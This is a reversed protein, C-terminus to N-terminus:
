TSYTKSNMLLDCSRDYVEFFFGCLKSKHRFLLRLTSSGSMKKLNFSQFLEIEYKKIGWLDMM